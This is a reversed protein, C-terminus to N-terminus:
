LIFSFLFLRPLCSVFFTYVPEQFVFHMAWGQVDETLNMEVVGQFGGGWHSTTNLYLAHIGSCVVSFLAFRVLFSSIPSM